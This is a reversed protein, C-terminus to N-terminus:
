YADRFVPALLNDTPVHDDTLLIPRHATVFQDLAAGSVVTHLDRSETSAPSYDSLTRPETARLLNLDLPQKSAVVVFTNRGTREWDAKLPMLVVEPFTEKLTKIYSSLFRGHAYDDILNVAFIGDPALHSAVLDNFEKTTLHYPVSFDNFADGFVFDYKKEASQRMLYTRADETAIAITTARSLGLKEFNVRVVGPDIEAVENASGLYFKELYRPMVFGGGGLYLSRPADKGRYAALIAYVKEYAYGLKGPNGPEVYSHVLHDLRLVLGGELAQTVRICYYNTETTCAGPAVFAALALFGVFVTMRNKLVRADAAIWIGLAFLIGAVGGIVARTGLFQILFFGTALTGLISGVAGAAYIRGVTKGTRDLSVLDLKVLIPSICGLFFAPPTFAIGAFLLTSLLLPLRSGPLTTGLIFSVILSALTTGGALFFIGALTARDARRDAIRGGVFNGLAIGLLIVAIVSTWTYLSVGLSPAMLRGAVLELVMLAFSAAFAILPYRWSSVQDRQPHHAEQVM